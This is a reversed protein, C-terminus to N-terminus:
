TGNQAGRKSVTVHGIAATQLRRTAPLGIRCRAKRAFSKVKTPADGAFSAGQGAGALDPMARIGQSGSLSFLAQLVKRFGRIMADIRARVDKRDQAKTAM